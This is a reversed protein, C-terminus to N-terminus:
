AARVGRPYWDVRRLAGGGSGLSWGALMPRLRRRSAALSLIVCAMPPQAFNPLGDNANRLTQEAPECVETTLDVEVTPNGRSDLIERAKITAIKSIKGDLADCNVGAARLGAISLPM